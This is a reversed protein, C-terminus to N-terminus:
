LETDVLWNELDDLSREVMAMRRERKGKVRAELPPLLGFNANMPQFNQPDTCNLYKMLSGIMTTPPPILQEKGALSRSVNIAALLGSAVCEVYGEVGTIQGAFFITRDEGIPDRPFSLYPSLIKPSNLFTNRHVSGYRLFRSNRLAPILRFVKEQEPYKLCTQFGVMHYMTCGFDEQRLQLVAYPRKGYRPDVLGVPRMPGFRPADRGRRAIEEIPICGSFFRDEEFSHPRVVEAEVLAIHFRLYEEKNLPCNVYDGEGATYRSATFARELDISGADLTPAIADYFYLNDEGLLRTIESALLNSTLPGTAIISFPSDSLSTAEGRVVRIRPHGEIEATVDGAFHDRDVALAKGAPIKNKRAIKLIISGFTDLEAKLLGQATEPVDSKLSNSCVLEGLNGSRHAPTM